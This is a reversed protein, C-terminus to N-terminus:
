NFDRDMSPRLQIWTHMLFLTDDVQSKAILIKDLTLNVRELQSLEHSSFYETWYEASAEQGSEKILKVVAKSRGILTENVRQEHEHRMLLNSMSQCCTDAINYVVQDLDVSMIFVSKGPANDPTKPVQRNRILGSKILMYSYERVDRAPLMICEEIQKLLLPGRQLLVKFVRCCKPGFRTTIVSCLHEKVLYDIVLGVDIAYMAGKNPHVGSTLFFRFVKESTLKELYKEVQLRIYQPILRALIDMLPVPATVSADAITTEFSLDLITRCLSRVKPDNNYFESVTNVVLDDRQERTLREFNVCYNQTNQVIYDKSMLSTLSEEIQSKQIDPQLKLSSLRILEERSLLAKELLIKVLSSAVNGERADIMDIMKGGRYFSFVRNLAVSYEYQQHFTRVARVYDVLQHKVLILLAKKLDVLKINPLNARLLRLSAQDFNFLTRIVSAVTPGFHQNTLCYALESHAPTAM